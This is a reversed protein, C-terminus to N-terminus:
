QSNVIACSVTSRFIKTRLSPRTYIPRVTTTTDLAYILSTARSLSPALNGDTPRDTHRHNITASQDGPTMKGDTSTSIISEECLQVAGSM